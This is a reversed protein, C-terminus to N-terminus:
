KCVRHNSSETVHAWTRGTAIGSICGATVGYATAIDRHLEGARLRSAIDSVNSETLKSHGHREGITDRGHIKRDNTNEQPTGYRINTAVNNLPNGDIHMVFYGDPKPGVFAEAVIRHIGIQKRQKNKVLNVVQYGRISVCLSLMRVSGNRDCLTKLRGISSVEYNGEYGVVARWEEICNLDSM